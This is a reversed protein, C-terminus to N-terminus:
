VDRSWAPSMHKHVLWMMWRPTVHSVMLIRGGCVHMGYQFTYKDEVRISQPCLIRAFFDSVGLYECGRNRYKFAEAVYLQDIGFIPYTVTNRFKQNVCDFTEFTLRNPNRASIKRDFRKVNKPLHLGRNLAIRHDPLVSWRFTTPEALELASVSS